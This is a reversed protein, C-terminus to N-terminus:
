QGNVLFVDWAWRGIKANQADRVKSRFRFFNGYEDKRKSERYDLDIAVIDLARLRSVEEPESIGNHNRDQWLRLKRFVTDMWTIQGDGNGGNELKDFEALALFGNRNGLAVSDPQPTFNGFLETGNEFTGNLNRDLALWADDSGVSTWSLHESLGDANLDFFVGNAANTLDFGNGSIDILIPSPGPQCSGSDFDWHYGEDCIEFEIGVGGGGGGDGQTQAPISLNINVSRTGYQFDTMPDLETFKPTNTNPIVGTQKWVSTILFQEVAQGSEPLDLDPTFSFTATVFGGPKNHPIKELSRGAPSVSYFDGGSQKGLGVTIYVPLMLSGLESSLAINATSSQSVGTGRDFVINTPSVSSLSIIPRVLIVNGATGVNTSGTGFFNGYEDYYGSQEEFNAQISYNGSELGLSLGTVNVVTAYNWGSDSTNIRGSPSTVTVTVLYSADSSYQESITGSGFANIGDNWIAIM